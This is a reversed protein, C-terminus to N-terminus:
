RSYYASRFRSMGQLDFSNTSPMAHPVPAHISPLQAQRQSSQYISAQANAKAKRLAALRDTVVGSGPPPSLFSSTPISPPGLAHLPTESLFSSM